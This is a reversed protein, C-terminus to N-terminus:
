AKSPLLQWRQIPWLITCNRCEISKGKKKTAPLINKPESNRIRGASSCNTFRLRFSAAPPSVYWVPYQQSIPFSSFSPWKWISIILRRPLWWSRSDKTPLILEHPQKQNIARAVAQIVLLKRVLQNLRQRTRCLQGALVIELVLQSFCQRILTTVLQSFCQLRFFVPTRLVFPYRPLLNFTQLIRDISGFKHVFSYCIHGQVLYNVFM